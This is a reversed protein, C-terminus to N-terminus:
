LVRAREQMFQAFATLFPPIKAIAENDGASLTAIVQEAVFTVMDADQQIIKKIM